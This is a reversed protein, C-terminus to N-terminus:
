EYEYKEGVKSSMFKKYIYYAGALIAAILIIIFIVKIGNSKKKIGVSINYITESGDEATVKVKVISGNQINENGEVEVLAKSDSVEYNITLASVNKDLNVYYSTITPDFNINYELVTLDILSSDNSLPKEKKTVKIRYESFSTENARVIISIVSGNVLNSNNRIEVNNKIDEAEAVINIFDVMHDITISYEYIDPNFIIGGTSLQLSKLKTNIIKTTTTTTTTKTTTQKTTRRKTTTRKTTTSTTTTTFSTGNSKRDCDYYLVISCYKVSDSNCIKLSDCKSSNVKKVYPQNNGNSCIVRSKEDYYNLNYKGSQCRAEICHSFYVDSSTVISKDQYKSTCMNLNTGLYTDSSSTTADVFNPLIFMIIFSFFCCIIRKM